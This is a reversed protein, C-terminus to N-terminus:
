QEYESTDFNDLAKSQEKRSLRSMAEEEPPPGEEEFMEGAGGTFEEDEAAMEEEPSPPAEGELAQEDSAVPEGEETVIPPDITYGSDELAGVIMVISIGEPLSAKLKNMDPM